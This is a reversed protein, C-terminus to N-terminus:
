IVHSKCLHRNPRFEPVLSLKENFALPIHRSPRIPARNHKGALCLDFQQESFLASGFTPETVLREGITLPLKPLLPLM